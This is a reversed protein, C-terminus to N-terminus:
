KAIRDLVVAIAGDGCVNCATGFSDTAIYLTIMLAVQPDSFGLVSQLVATAAMIAGGPVGPAAVMTVGLLFIFQTFLSLSIPQGSLLVVTMAFATIKMTSGALHITACLPVCFQAITPRVGNLLTQRLTVPITAASSSTGLATAYAPLMNWLLSLPNRRAIIGAVCYQILILLVHLAFIVCIAKGFVAITAGAAGLATMKLFIGFIFLPLLPIITYQIVSEIIQQSETVCAQLTKAGRAAIGLGLLFAFTLATMVNMLPELAVTFFPLIDTSAGDVAAADISMGSLLVPFIARCSFFTFFGSFLTSGYAIAVTILVLPGSRLGLGSIGGTVLALIILPICFELYESFFGNFTIFARVVPLPVVAGLALGLSVAIVVQLLLPIKM